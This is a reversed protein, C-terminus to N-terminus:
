SARNAVAIVYGVSLLFVCVFCALYIGARGPDYLGLGGCLLSAIPLAFLKNGVRRHLAERDSVNDYPVNSLVPARKAFRVALAVVLLLPTIGLLLVSFITLADNM